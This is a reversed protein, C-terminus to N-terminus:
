QSGEQVDWKKMEEQMGGMMGASEMEADQQEMYREMVIKWLLLHRREKRKLGRQCQKCAGEENGVWVKKRQNKM